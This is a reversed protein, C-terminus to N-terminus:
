RTELSLSSATSMSVPVVLKQANLFTYKQKLHTVKAYAGWTHYCQVAKTMYSQMETNEGKERLHLACRENMVAELHVMNATASAEIAKDFAAVSMSQMANLCLYVPLANPSGAKSLVSMRKLITKGIATVEKTHKVKKRRELIALGLFSLRLHQRAVMMDTLPYTALIEIMKDECEEDGFIFALQIRLTSIDRLAMSRSNGELRSLAKEEDFAEGKFTTLNCESKGSLNLLFQRNLQFLLVFSDKDFDRAAREYLLLKTGWMSNLPLGGCYYAQACTLACGMGESVSGSSILRKYLVECDPVDEHFAHRLQLVGFKLKLRIWGSDVDPSQNMIGTALNAYALATEFKGEKVLGVASNAFMHALDPGVVEHTYADRLARLEILKVLASNQSLNAFEQTTSYLKMKMRLIPDKVLPMKLLASLSQNRQQLKLMVREKAIYNKSPSFPLELIDCGKKAGRTYDKEGKEATVKILSSLAQCKDGENAANELVENILEEVVDYNQFSAESQLLRNHLDLCLQYETHWRLKKEVPLYKIGARLYVNSQTLSAKASALDSASLNLKAMEEPQISSELLFERPVTNFNNTAVFLMWENGGRVASTSKWRSSLSQAILILLKYQEEGESVRARAAENILDHSFMYLSSSDESSGEELIQLLCEDVLTNLMTTVDDSSLSIGDSELLCRLTEVDIVNRTYAALVLARQNVGQLSAIKNKIMNLVDNEVFLKLENKLKLNYNWDYTMIDFYIINRRALEELAQMVYFINGMTKDFVIDALDHVDGSDEKELTDAIFQAVDKQSLSGIEMHTVADCKNMNENDDEEGGGNGLGEQVRNMFKRHQDHVEDTRYAGIFLFHQVSHSTLLSLILELSAEDAWQLDDIFMIVMPNDQKRGLAAVFVQLLVKLADMSINTTAASAPPAGNDESMMKQKDLKGDDILVPSLCPFMKMLVYSGEDKPGVGAKVLNSRIQRLAKGSGRKTIDASWQALVENIASFPAMSGFQNFKGSGYFPTPDSQQQERRVFEDVLASKGTGSLGSLFVVRRKTEAVALEQYIKKLMGLEVDRGYLKNKSFSIRGKTVDQCSEEDEAKNERQDYHTEDPQEAVTGAAGHVVNADTIDLPTHYTTKGHTNAATAILASVDQPM